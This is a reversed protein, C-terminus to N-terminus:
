EMSNKSSVATKCFREGLKELDWYKVTRDRSGTLCFKLERKPLAVAGIAEAHGSCVGICKIADEAEFDVAWLRATHDKSGSLLLTGDSSRDLCIVIDSHGYIVDCDLTNIHYIRIQETNTAVALHDNNSGIYTIDIVEDNYGIIQKTRKLDSDISYILINQDSTIVAINNSL